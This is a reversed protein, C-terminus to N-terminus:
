SRTQRETRRGHGYVANRAPLGSYALTGPEHSQQHGEDPTANTQMDSSSRKLWSNACSSSDLTRRFDVQLRRPSGCGQEFSTLRTPGPFWVNATVAQRAPLGFEPYIRENSAVTPATNATSYCIWANRGRKAGRLLRLAHTKSLRPSTVKRRQRRLSSLLHARAVVVVVM